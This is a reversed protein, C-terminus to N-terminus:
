FCSKVFAESIVYLAIIALDSVVVVKRTAISNVQVDSSRRGAKYPQRRLSRATWDKFLDIRREERQADDGSEDDPM